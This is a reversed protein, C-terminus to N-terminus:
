RLGDVLYLDSLVRRYGYAYGRGDATLQAAFISTVGAPDAPMLERVPDVRGSRLQYRLLRAPLEGPLFVFLESGDASFRIPVTGRPLGALERPAEGESFLSLRQQAGVAAVWKGDPSIAAPAIPM